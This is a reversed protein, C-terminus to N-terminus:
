KTRRWQQVTVIKRHRRKTMSSETDCAELDVSVAGGAAGCDGGEWCGPWGDGEDEDM